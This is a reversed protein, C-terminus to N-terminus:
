VESSVIIMATASQSTFMTVIIEVKVVGPSAYSKLKECSILIVPGYSTPTAIGGEGGGWLALLCNKKLVGLNFLLAAHQSM